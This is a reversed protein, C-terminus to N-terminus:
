RDVSASGHKDAESVPDRGLIERLLARAESVNDSDINLTINVTVAGSNGTLSPVTEGGLRLRHSEAVRVPAAQEVSPRVSVLDLSEQDESYSDAAVARLTGGEDLLRGAAILLQVIATAGTTTESSKPAGATIGIHSLLTPHDMGGRIRVASVIRSLFDSDDVLRALSSRIRDEDSHSAALGLARGSDTLTKKQGGQIIGLSQFFKSNRSLLSRHVGAANAVEPVLLPEGKSRQDAVAYAQVMKLLEGFSSKPLSFDEAM